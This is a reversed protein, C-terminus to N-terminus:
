GCESYPQTHNQIDPSYPRLSITSTSNAQSTFPSGPHAKEPTPSAEFNSSLTEVIMVQIENYQSPQEQRMKLTRPNRLKASSLKQALTPDKKAQAITKM